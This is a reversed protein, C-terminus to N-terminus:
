GSDTPNYKYGKWVDRTRELTRDVLFVVHGKELRSGSFYWLDKRLLIDEWTEAEAFVDNCLVTELFVDCSVVSHGFFGSIEVEYTLFVCRCSEFFVYM